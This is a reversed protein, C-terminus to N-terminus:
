INLEVHLTTWFPQQKVKCSCFFVSGGKLMTADLLADCSRPTSSKVGWVRGRHTKQKWGCSWLKPPISTRTERDRLRIPCPTWYLHGRSSWRTLWMSVSHDPAERERIPQGKIIHFYNKEKVELLQVKYFCKNEQTSISHSCQYVSRFDVSLLKSQLIHVPQNRFRASQCKWFKLRPPTTYPTTHLM